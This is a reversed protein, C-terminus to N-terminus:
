SHVFYSLINMYVTGDYHSTKQGIHTVTHEKLHESRLFSKSCNGIKCHFKRDNTHIKEHRKLKSATHFSWKCNKYNCIYPRHGTHMRTHEKLRCPQDFSKGCNPWRCILESKKDSHIKIHASLATNLFFSKKCNPIPCHFCAESCSHDKLHRDRARITQFKKNCNLVPCPLDAPRDHLRKHNNLNYITSFKRLCNNVPCMFDKSKFHTEEHRKLKSPTYFAWNCNSFKCQYPKFGIHVLTHLKATGQRFFIVDCNSSPCLFLESGVHTVLRPILIDEHNQMHIKGLEVIVQEQELQADVEKNSILCPPMVEKKNNDLFLLHKENGVNSLKILLGSKIKEKLVDFKNFALAKNKPKGKLNSLLGKPKDLTKCTSKVTNTLHFRNDCNELYKNMKLQVEDLKKHLINEYVYENIMCQKSNILWEDLNEVQKLLNNEMFIGNEYPELVFEIKCGDDM